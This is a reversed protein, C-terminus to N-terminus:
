EDKTEHARQRIYHTLAELEEDSFNPFAPMGRNTREGGSVISKFAQFSLPIPSERLDPAMGQAKMDPSHCSGCAGYLAAGHNAKSEDIKFTSDYLPKAFYKPPLKPMDAKGDLSFTILRRTHKGYAWGLAAHGLGAWGGGWGVLLSIYQRGNIKYTIPPASIGLGCDFSWLIKGTAADYASFIGTSSGQFLLNGATSLTGPGWVGDQQISWAAKQKVPDWALLSAETSAPIEGQSINVGVGGEFPKARFNKLDIGSDDYYLADHIVPIYTLGTEPNFSMAHWSHAGAYSPTIYVKGNEYRANPTEVPKGTTMDIHSAWTTKVFPEASILKGTERNIVYFFGNKPAHLIAKTKKGDIMLDTLVIDMNSNYDWSEGPTTQYHWLYKGNDPNLAVISCLFLNDGGEPSRVKRNWPAGNGTGIYLVDLEPDYTFGHWANGGGGHKWWEGTWTKAAMEMAENEFGDAPNGPVIYFKWAEKGTEADYATVWGRTPGEETGGNGILVKDKFAKPAGTIYLARSPDFTTVIWKEKGSKYDLAFLRGDWTAGFIKDKSFSLGRNHVWGSQRKGKIADGVKPDYEWILKGTVADVARVINMTGVFYLIGDVVLPTSVLGVDNPLDMFWDVSLDAVNSVDIDKLPSFREESHTRGYALWEATTSKDAIAKDDYIKKDSNKTNCSSILLTIMFCGATFQTAKMQQHNKFM